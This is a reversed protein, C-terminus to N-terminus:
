YLTTVIDQQDDYYEGSIARETVEENASFANVYVSHEVVDRGCNIEKNERTYMVATLTNNRVEMGELQIRNFVREIKNTRSPQSVTSCNNRILRDRGM